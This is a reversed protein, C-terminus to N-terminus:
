IEISVRNTNTILFEGQLNMEKEDNRQPASNPTFTFGFKGM